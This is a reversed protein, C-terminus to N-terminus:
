SSSGGYQRFNSIDKEVSDLISKIQNPDGSFKSAAEDLQKSMNRLKNQGETTTTSSTM